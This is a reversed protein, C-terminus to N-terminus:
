LGADEAIDAAVGAVFSVGAAIKSVKGKTAAAVGAAADSISQLGDSIAGAGNVSDIEAFSLEVVNNMIHGKTKVFM